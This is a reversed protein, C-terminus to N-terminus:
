LDIFLSNNCIQKGKVCKACRDNGSSNHPNEVMEQVTAHIGEKSRKPQEHDRTSHSGKLFCM